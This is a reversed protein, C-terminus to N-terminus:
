RNGATVEKSRKAVFNGFGALEPHRTMVVDFGASRLHAEIEAEDRGDHPHWEGVIVGIRRLTAAASSLLIDFESGECDLKLVDVEGVDHEDLLDDLRRIEIEQTADGDEVVRSLVSAPSEWLFAKGTRGGLGAAVVEVRSELGNDALNRRLLGLAVAGPEVALIRAQPARGAFWLSATGINAGADVIVRVHEWDLGEVEYDHLLFVEVYAQMDNIQSCLTRGDRFRLTIVRRSMESHELWRRAPSLMVLWSLPGVAYWNRLHGRLAYITGGVRIRSM